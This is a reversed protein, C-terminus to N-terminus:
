AASHKWTVFALLTWLPKRHDAKGSIHEDVLTRVAAPSFFGDANLRAASLEEELWPRLEGKLWSGIPMAFGQKKRYLTDHPLVGELARKLVRKTTRGSLRLSPHIGCAFGIVKSDLMPARVELGVAMSARDVKTLVQD